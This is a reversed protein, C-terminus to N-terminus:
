MLFVDNIDNVTYQYNYIKCTIKVHTLHVGILFEFRNYQHKSILIYQFQVSPHTMISSCMTNTIHIVLKESESANFLTLLSTQQM